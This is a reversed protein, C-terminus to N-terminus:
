EQKKPELDEMIKRYDQNQSLSFLLASRRDVPAKNINDIMDAIRKSSETAKNRVNGALSILESNTMKTLNPVQKGAVTSLRGLVNATQVASDKAVGTINSIIGGDATSARRGLNYDQSSQIIKQELRKALSPNAQKVSDIMNGFTRKTEPQFSNDVNKVLNIAKDNVQSEGLSRRFEPQGLDKDQTELLSSIKKNIPELKEKNLNEVLDSSERAVKKIINEVAPNGRSVEFAEKQIQKVMNAATQPDLAGRKVGEIIGDLSEQTTKVIQNGNETIQSTVINKNEPLSALLKEIDQKKGQYTKQVNNVQEGTEPDFKLREVTKVKVLDKLEEPVEQYLKSSLFKELSKAEQDTIKGSSLSGQIDDLGRQIVQEFDVKKGEKGLSDLIKGKLDSYKSVANSITDQVSQANKILEQEAKNGAQRGVISEGQVGKEFARIVDRGLDSDNVLDKIKGLVAKGGNVVSPAIEGAAMTAGTIAPGLVAGTAAGVATDGIANDLKGKTLDANSYGLGSIAGAGAGVKAANLLAQLKSVNSVNSIAGLGSLGAGTAIGGGLEGVGYSYPNQAKESADIARNEDRAKTYLSGLSPTLDGTFGQDDLMKDTGSVKGGTLADLIAQLGGGIEDSFGFTGGQTAGAIASEAMNAPPQKTKDKNENIEQFGLDNLEEDHDKIEQFGLSDLEKDM